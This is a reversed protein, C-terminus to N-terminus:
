TYATLSFMFSCISMSFFIYISFWVMVYFTFNVQATACQIRNQRHISMVQSINQMFIIIIFYVMIPSYTNEYRIFIFRLISLTHLPYIFVLCLCRQEKSQLYSYLFIHKNLTRLIFKIHVRIHFLILYIYKCLIQILCSDHHIFNMSSGTVFHSICITKCGLKDNAKMTRLNFFFFHLIVYKQSNLKKKVLASSLSSFLDDEYVM